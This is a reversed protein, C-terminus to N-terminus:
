DAARDGLPSSRIVFLPARAAVSAGETVAVRSLVGERLARVPDVGREPVLTFRGSVTEPVHVVAVALTVLAVLLVVFYTLGQAAWHPPDRDLFEADQNFGPM